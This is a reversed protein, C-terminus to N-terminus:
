IKDQVLPSGDSSRYRLSALWWLLTQVCWVGAIILLQPSDEVPKAHEHNFYETVATGLTMLFILERLFKLSFIGGSVLCNLLGALMKQFSFLALYVAFIWSDAQFAQFAFYWLVLISVETFMGFFSLGKSGTNEPAVDGYYLFLDEVIVAVLFISFWFKADLNAPAMVQLANSIIAAYFLDMFIRRIGANAAM